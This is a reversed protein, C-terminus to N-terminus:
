VEFIEQEVNKGLLVAELESVLWLRHKGLIVPCPLSRLEVLRLFDSVSLSLLRAARKETVALVDHHAMTEGKVMHRPGM